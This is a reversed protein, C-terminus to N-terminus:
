LLVPKDPLEGLKRPEAAAIPFHKMLHRSVARIGKVAGSEYRGQRFDEEMMCCITQWEPTGVRTHVGRDAVIEVARDALLVYILIGNRHETDWMRHKSFVEIARERPSRSSYLATGHLAGEVVFCIEGVHSQESEQIAHEIAGLATRPFSHRVRWPTMLLHRCIRTLNVTAM